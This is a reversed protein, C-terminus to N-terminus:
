RMEDIFDIYDQPTEFEVVKCDSLVEIECDRGIEFDTGLNMKGFGLVGISSGPGPIHRTLMMTAFSGGARPAKKIVEIAAPTIEIEETSMVCGLQGKAKPDNLFKGNQIDIDVGLNGKYEFIRATM